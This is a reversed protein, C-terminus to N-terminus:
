ASRSVLGDEGQNFWVEGMKFEDLFAKLRESDAPQVVRAGDARRKFILIQDTRPDVNDLLYPSHTTLVIQAASGHKGETIERLLHMIDALRYPHVGNEPEEFLILKPPTPHYALTIFFLMLRVGASANEAPIRLGGDIVLDISRQNANGPTPINVSEVGSVHNRVAEEIQDFRKRDNRLFFDLVDAM